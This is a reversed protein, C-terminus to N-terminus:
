KIHRVKKDAHMYIYWTCSQHGLLGSPPMLYGPVTTFPPQSGGHPYQSCFRPRRCSYCARKIASGDRWSCFIFAHSLHCLLALSIFFARKEWSEKREVNLVVLQEGIVNAWGQKDLCPPVRSEKWSPCLALWGREGEGSRLLKTAKQGM